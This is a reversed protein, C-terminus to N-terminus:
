QAVEMLTITSTINGYGANNLYITGNNNMSKLQVKYTTTSTTAPSDLYNCGVGGPGLNATSNTYGIFHDLVMLDTSNRLLKFGGSTNNSDKTIGNLDVIVLIKSTSSKPTISATLGSDAYTSSSTSVQTVSTANVVQLVQGAGAMESQVKTLAM